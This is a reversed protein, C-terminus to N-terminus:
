APSGSPVVYVLEHKSAPIVEHDSHTVQGDTDYATRTIAFVLTGVKLDPHEELDQATAFRSTVREITRPQGHDIETRVVEQHQRDDVFVGAGKRTAVVGEIRLQDIANQITQRAVGYHNMLASVSPLQHGPAYTGREVQDRLDDAIQTARRESM